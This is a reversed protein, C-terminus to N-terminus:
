LLAKAIAQWQAVPLPTAGTGPDTQATLVLLAVHDAGADRHAQVRDAVRDVDGWAFLADILRDSGGGALDADDFGLRRFNNTYNAYGLYHTLTTRAVSRAEIPDPELVVMQCPALLPDPGLAARAAATHEVTVLYPHTGRSREAALRLSKPGLAALVISEHPVPPTAADLQDLFSRMKALPQDYVLGHRQM